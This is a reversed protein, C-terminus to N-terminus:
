GELRIALIKECHGGIMQADRATPELLEGTPGHMTEARLRVLKPAAEQSGRRGEARQYRSTDPEDGLSYGEGVTGLSDLRVKSSGEGDLEGLEQALDM